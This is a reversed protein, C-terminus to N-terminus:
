PMDITARLDAVTRAIGDSFSMRPTWGLVERALTVDLISVPVDFRRGPSRIVQIEHGLRAEIESIIGNLSV